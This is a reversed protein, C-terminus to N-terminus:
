SLTFGLTKAWKGEFYCLSWFLQDKTMGFKAEGPNDMIDTRAWFHRWSQLSLSSKQFAWQRESWINLTKMLMWTSLQEWNVRMPMNRTPRTLLVHNWFLSDLKHLMLPEVYSSRDVGCGEEQLIKLIAPTGPTHRCFIRQIWTGLFPRTSQEQKKVFGRRMMCTLFEPFEAVITELDERSIFPTEYADKRNQKCSLSPYDNWARITKTLSIELRLMSPHNKVDIDTVKLTVQLWFQKKVNKKPMTQLSQLVLWSQILSASVLWGTSREAAKWFADVILVRSGAKLSRKSLFMKEIRDGSSCVYNVSATSGETSKWIVACLSLHFTLVNAAANQLPVGKTAVTMVADIKPGYLEQCHHAWYKCIAPPRLDSCTSIVAATAKQLNTVCTQSWEKAEHSSISPHLVRWWRSWDCDTHGIEIEEFARKIIM